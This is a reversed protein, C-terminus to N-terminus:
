FTKGLKEALEKRSFTEFPLELLKEVVAKDMIPIDFLDVDKEISKCLYMHGWAYGSGSKEWLPTIIIYTGDYFVVDYTVDKGANSNNWTNDWSENDRCNFHNEYVMKVGGFEHLREEPKTIDWLYRDGENEQKYIGLGFPTLDAYTEYDLMEEQLQLLERNDAMKKPINAIEMVGFWSFPFLAVFWILLSIAAKCVFNAISNPLKVKKVLEKNMIFSFIILPGLTLAFSHNSLFGWLIILIFINFAVCVVYGVVCFLIRLGNNKSPKKLLMLLFASVCIDIVALMLIQSEFSFDSFEM